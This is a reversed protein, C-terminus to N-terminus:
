GSRWAALRLGIGTGCHGGSRSLFPRSLPTDRARLIDDRPSPGMKSLRRRMRREIGGVAAAAASDPVRTVVNDPYFLPGDLDV